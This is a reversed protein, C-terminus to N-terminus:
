KGTLLIVEGSIQEQNIISLQGKKCAGSVCEVLYQNKLLTIDAYQEPIVGEIIDEIKGDKYLSVESNKMDISIEQVPGALTKVVAGDKVGNFGEQLNSLFNNEISSSMSVYIISGAPVVGGVYTGRAVAFSDNKDSPVVYLITSALGAYIGAVLVIGLLFFMFITKLWSAIIAGWNLTEYEIVVQPANNNILPQENELDFVKSSSRLKGKSAM